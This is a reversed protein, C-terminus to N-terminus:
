PEDPLMRDLRTKEDPAQENRSALMRDHEADEVGSRVANEVREQELEELHAQNEHGTDLPPDQPNHTMRGQAVGDDETIALDEGQLERRAQELDQPRIERDDPHNILAIQRARESVTERSPTGLPDGSVGIRGEPPQKRTM